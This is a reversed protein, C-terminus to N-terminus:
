RDATTRVRDELLLAVDEAFRVTLLAQQGEITGLDAVGGTRPDFTRVLYSGQPVTVQLTLTRPSCPRAEYLTQDVLYVIYRGQGDTSVAYGYGPIHEPLVDPAPVLAALDYQRLLQRCLALWDRLRRGDLCRGDTLPVKGSGTEDAITFSWDLSNYGAGGSLVTEWAEARNIPYREPAGLVIGSYTEDFVIPKRFRDRERLFGWVVGGRADVLDGHSAFEDFLLGRARKGCSIYHYNIVDIEPNEFHAPDDLQTNPEGPGAPVRVQFHPNAAILHQRPLNREVNRLFHAMHAHWAVIQQSREETPETSFVPENCLEYYVNGFDNLEEVMRRIFREEYQM